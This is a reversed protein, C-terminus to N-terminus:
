NSIKVLFDTPFTCIGSTCDSIGAPNLFLVVRGTEDLFFDMESFYMAIVNEDVDDYFGWINDTRRIEEIQQAIEFVAFVLPPETEDLLDGLTLSRGLALSFTEGMYLETLRDNELIGECIWMSIIEGDNYTQEFMVTFELPTIDGGLELWLDHQEEYFMTAYDDAYYALWDSYRENFTEARDDLLYPLWLDYSLSFPEGAEQITGERTLAQVPVPDGALAVNMTLWVCLLIIFYSRLNRM